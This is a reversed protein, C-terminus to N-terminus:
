IFGASRIALVLLYPVGACAPLILVWAWLMREVVSLHLANFRNAWGVGGNAEPLFKAQLSGRNDPVHVVQGEPLAQFM